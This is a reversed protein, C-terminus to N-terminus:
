AQNAVFATAGVLGVTPDIKNTKDQLTEEEPLKQYKVQKRPNNEKGPTAKLKMSQRLINSKATNDM